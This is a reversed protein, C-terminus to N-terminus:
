LDNKQAYEAALDLEFLPLRLHHKLKDFSAAAEANKKKTHYVEFFPKNIEDLGSPDDGQRGPKEVDYNVVAGGLAAGGGAVCRPLAAQCKHKM